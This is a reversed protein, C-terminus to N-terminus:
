LSMMFSSLSEIFLFYFSLTFKLMQIFNLFHLCCKRHSINSILCFPCLVLKLETLKCFELRDDLPNRSIEALTLGYTYITIKRVMKKPGRQSTPRHYVGAKRVSACEITHIIMMMMMLIIFFSSSSSSFIRRNQNAMNRWKISSLRLEVSQRSTLM